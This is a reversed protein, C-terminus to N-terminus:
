VAEGAGHQRKIDMGDRVTVMCAQQDSRGDIVMLCEFCVGMLCYARRPAGTVPTTRTHGNDAISIAGAVTEGAPVVLQEGEFTITVTDRNDEPLRRFM